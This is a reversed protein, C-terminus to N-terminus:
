DSLEDGRIEHILELDWRYYTMFSFTQKELDVKSKLSEAKIEYSKMRFEFEKSRWAGLLTCPLGSGRM